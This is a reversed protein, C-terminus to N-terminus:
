NRKGLGGNKFVFHLVLRSPTCLTIANNGLFPTAICEM